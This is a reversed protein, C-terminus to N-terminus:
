EGFEEKVIEELYILRDILELTAEKMLYPDCCDKRLHERLEAVTTPRAFYHKEGM